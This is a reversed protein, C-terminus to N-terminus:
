ILLVQLVKFQKFLDQAEPRLFLFGSQHLCLGVMLSPTTQIHVIIPAQGRCISPGQCYGGPPTLLAPQYWQSALRQLRQSTTSVPSM